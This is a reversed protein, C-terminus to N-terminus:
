PLSKMTIGGSHHGSIDQGLRCPHHTWATSETMRVRQLLHEPITCSVKMSEAELVHWEQRELASGLFVPKADLGAARM